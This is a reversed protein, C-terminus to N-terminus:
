CFIDRNIIILSLIPIHSFQWVSIDGGYQSWQGAGLRQSM